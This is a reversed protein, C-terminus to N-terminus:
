LPLNPLDTPKNVNEDIWKSLGRTEYGLGICQRDLEQRANKLWVQAVFEMFDDFSAPWAPRKIMQLDLSVAVFAGVINKFFSRRNTM